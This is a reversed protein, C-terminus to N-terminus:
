SLVGLYNVLNQVKCFWKIKVQGSITQGVKGTNCVGRNLSLRSTKLWVEMELSFCESTYLQVQLM